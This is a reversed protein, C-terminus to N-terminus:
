RTPRIATSLHPTRAFNRPAHLTLLVVTRPVARTQTAKALRPNQHSHRWRREAREVPKFFASLTTTPRTPKSSTMKAPAPNRQSHSSCRSRGTM